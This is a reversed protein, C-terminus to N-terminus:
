LRTMDDVLEGAGVGLEVEVDDGDNNSDVGDGVGDDTVAERGGDLEDLGDGDNSAGVGV